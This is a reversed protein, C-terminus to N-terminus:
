RLRADTQGVANKYLAAEAPSLQITAIVQGTAVLRDRLEPLVACTWSGAALITLDGARLQRGDTCEVGRVDGDEILLRQGLGSEFRVGLARCKQAVAVMADRAASWGSQDNFYALDPRPGLLYSEAINMASQYSQDSDLMVPKTASGGAEYIRVLNGFSDEVNKRGPGADDVSGIIVVRCDSSACENPAPSM